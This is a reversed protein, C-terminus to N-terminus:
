GAQCGITVQDIDAVSPESLATSTRWVICCRRADPELFLTDLNMAMSQKERRGNGNRRTVACTLRLDPLRWDARGEPTLNILTVPENGQLYGDVQLDPHAGNYYRADFDEPLLPCRQKRWAPDYTGAYAARPQWARGYFGFGVPRPHDAPTRILHRPDEICPLPKGALNQKSKPSCFGKGVLNEACYQGSVADIGGFAEEYIIAQRVFPKAETMIYKHSLVGAHNWLREGFVMIQKEVPGVKASVLVKEAPKEGPAYATARLVADTRPKFPLVDSEYHIGGAEGYLEDGYVIPIQEDAPECRGPGFVFTGKVIVTLLYDGKPGTLPLAAVEFSTTNELKM